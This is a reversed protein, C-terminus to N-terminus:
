INARDFRAGFFMTQAIAFSTLEERAKDSTIPLQSVIEGYQGLLLKEWGSHSWILKTTGALREAREERWKMGTGKELLRNTEGEM